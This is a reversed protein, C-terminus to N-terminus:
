LIRGNSDIYGADILTQALRRYYGRAGLHLDRAICDSMAEIIEEESAQGAIFREQFEKSFTYM